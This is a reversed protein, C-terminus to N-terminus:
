LAPIGLNILFTELDDFDATLFGLLGFFCGAAFFLLGILAWFACLLLLAALAVFDGAL